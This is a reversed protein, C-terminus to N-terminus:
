VETDSQTRFRSETLERRLELYNYTEGNYTLCSGERDLMPQDGTDLDIITLRRHAFAVHQQEHIWYGEGDPGRHALLDNMVGVTARPARLRQGDLSIAGGIGCMHDTRSSIPSCAGHRKLTAARLHM